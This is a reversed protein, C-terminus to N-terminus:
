LVHMFKLEGTPSVKGYDVFEFANNAYEWSWVETTLHQSNAEILDWLHNYASKVKPYLTTDSCFAPIPATGNCRLLQKQYGAAIMAMPWSWVVTGHYASDTWNAAYVPNNGFAPNAVFLGV